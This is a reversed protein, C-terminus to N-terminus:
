KRKSATKLGCLTPDGCCNEGLYDILAQMQPYGARLRIERGERTDHVLGAARLQNLHATFTAPAQALEDRLEGVTMGAEGVQVLRRFAQLRTDHALASLAKLAADSDM